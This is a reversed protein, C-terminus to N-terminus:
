SLHEGSISDGSAPGRAAVHFPRPPLKSSHDLGVRRDKGVSGASGPCYPDWGPQVCFVSTLAGQPAVESSSFRENEGPFVAM